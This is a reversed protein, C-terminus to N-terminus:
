MPQQSVHLSQALSARDVARGPGLSLSPQPMEGPGPETRCLMQLCWRHSAWRGCQENTLSFLHANAEALLKSSSFSLGTFFRSEWLYLIKSGWSSVPFCFLVRQCVYSHVWVQGYNLHDDRILVACNITRDGWRFGFNLFLERQVTKHRVM